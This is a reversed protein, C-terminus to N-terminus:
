QEQKILQYKAEELSKDLQTKIEHEDWEIDKAEFDPSIPM